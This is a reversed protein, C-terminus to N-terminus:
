PHDGYIGERTLAEPPLPRHGPGLEIATEEALEDFEALLRRAWKKRRWYPSRQDPPAAQFYTAAEDAGVADLTEGIVQQEIRGKADGSGWPLAAIVLVVVVAAGVVWLLRDRDLVQRPHSLFAVLLRFEASSLPM